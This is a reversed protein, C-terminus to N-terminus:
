PHCDRAQEHDGHHAARVHQWFGRVVFTATLVSLLIAAIFLELWLPRHHDVGWAVVVFLVTTLFLILDRWHGKETFYSTTNQLRRKKEIAMLLDDIHESIIRELAARREVQDEPIRELLELESRIVGRLDPANSTGALGGLMLGGALPAAAQALAGLGSMVM